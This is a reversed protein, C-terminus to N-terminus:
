KDEPPKAPPDAPKEAPKGAAADAPHPPPDDMPTVVPPPREGMPPPPGPPLLPPGDPPAVPPHVTAEPDPTTLDDDLSVTSYKLKAPEGEKAEGKTYYVRVDYSKWPLGARWSYTEVVWDSRGPVPDPGSDPERGLAAHIEAQSLLKDKLAPDSDLKEVRDFASQSEARAQWDLYFAVAAVVLLAVLFIRVILRVGSTSDEPPTPSPPTTSM